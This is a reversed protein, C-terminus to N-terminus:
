PAVRQLEYGDMGPMVNFGARAAADFWTVDFGVPDPEGIMAGYSLRYVELRTSARFPGATELMKAIEAPTFDSTRTEAEAQERGNM